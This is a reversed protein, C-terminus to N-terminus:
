ADRGGSRPDDAPAMGPRVVASGFPRRAPAQREAIGVLHRRVRPLESLLDSALLGADGLRERVHGGAAAHLHVGLCAADWTTAGQALLGGLIGALVDGTGGTGLAPNPAAAVAVAVAGDPSAIVTRAGKLVVVQRWRIAASRAREVREADDGGVPIGELRELEGPHPTLILPRAAATWWDPIAALSNLGEADVVAPGRTAGDGGPGLLAAVFERTASGPRLGPGVLLAAHRRAGVARAAAVPDVVFPQSEPLGMTILEPVRGAVVPQLAAPVALVVIGAGARLAATGALLSAGALDLSGCVAVLTGFTGKHGDAPRAPVLAAIAAEDLLAAGAPPLWRGRGNM